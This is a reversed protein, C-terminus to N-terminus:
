VKKSKLGSYTLYILCGLLTLGSIGLGLYFLSQTWFYIILTFDEGLGLKNPEVYWANAYGNVLYHEKIDAQRFLYRIDSPTFKQLHRAEKVGLRLYEEGIEEFTQPRYLRWQKHFSESFVLWFPETANKVKVRYKTPNIKQFIIEPGDKSETGEIRSWKRGGIAIFDLKRLGPFLSELNHYGEKLYIPQAIYWFGSKTLSLNKQDIRLTPFILHNEEYPIVKENYIQLHQLFISPSKESIDENGTEPNKFIKVILKTLYYHKKNPFESKALELANFSHNETSVEQIAKADTKGDGDCNFYLIVNVLLNKPDNNQHILNIYPYKKLDLNEFSRSFALYKKGRKLKKKLSIRENFAYDPAKVYQPSVKVRLSYQGSSPIYFSGKLSKEEWSDITSNLEKSFFYTPLTEAKKLYNRIREEIEIIKKGLVIVLEQPTDEVVVQHRGKKLEISGIRKWQVAKGLNPSGPDIKGASLAPILSRGDIRVETAQLKSGTTQQKWVEYVGDEEAECGVPKLGDSVKVEYDPELIQLVLDLPNSNSFVFAQSKPLLKELSKGEQQKSFFIVPHGDLYQTYTLPLLLDVGGVVLTSQAFSFTIFSYNLIINVFLIIVIRRGVQRINHNM